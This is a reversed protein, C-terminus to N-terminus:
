ADGGSRFEDTAVVAFEREVVQNREWGGRAPQRRHPSQGAALLVLEEGSPKQTIVHKTHDKTVVIEDRLQRRLSGNVLWDRIPWRRVRPQTPGSLLEGMRKWCYGSADNAFPLVTFVHGWSVGLGVFEEIDHVSQLDEAVFIVIPEPRELPRLPGMSVFVEAPLPTDPMLVLPRVLSAGPSAAYLYRAYHCWVLFSWALITRKTSDDNPRSVAVQLEDPESSRDRLQDFTQGFRDRQRRAPKSTRSALNIVAHNDDSDVRGSARLQGTGAFGLSFTRQGRIRDVGENEYTAGILANCLDCALTTAHHDGPLSKAPYHAATAKMEPRLHLCVPCVFHGDAVTTGLGAMASNAAAAFALHRRRKM